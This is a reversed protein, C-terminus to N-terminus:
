LNPATTPPSSPSSITIKDINEKSTSSFVLSPHAARESSGWPPRLTKNLIIKVYIKRKIKIKKPPDFQSSIAVSPHDTRMCPMLQKRQHAEVIM